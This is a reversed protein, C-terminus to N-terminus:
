CQSSVRVKCWWLTLPQFKWGSEYMLPCTFNGEAGHHKGRFAIVIFLRGGEVNCHVLVSYMQIRYLYLSLHVTMMYIDGKCKNPWYVLLQQRSYPVWTFDSYKVSSYNWRPLELLTHWDFLSACSEVNLKESSTISISSNCLWMEQEVRCIRWVRIITNGM